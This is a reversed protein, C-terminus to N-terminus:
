LPLSHPLSSGKLVSFEACYPSTTVARSSDSSTCIREVTCGVMYMAKCNSSIGHEVMSSPMKYDVCSANQPSVVCGEESQARAVSVCCALLCLLQAVTEIRM